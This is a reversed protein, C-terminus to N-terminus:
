ILQNPLWTALWPCFCLLLICSFMALVFWIVHRYIKAMPAAGPMGSIAFVVMGVPPTISGMEMLIVMVVGFWVPDFGLALISPFLAPLTLLIMPVVNIMCGLIVYLVVIGTFVAWKNTTISLIFDALEFPLRTTALFYGLINVGMLIFILKSTTTISSECAHVFNQFTLKRTWMAYLFSGFAGWAGGETPTFIGTLIGGLVFVLLGIMPLVGTLSRFRESWSAKDGRPALEPHIKAVAYIFLCFFTALILGPIIGAIFLKGLSEETIISYFIFGVSPPILIGLTGGCACTACALGANYKFKKMEPLAVSGMTMATALSDGCIAAFGACGSVTAIALGGPVHGMWKSAAKFLDSSIGSYLALEGMLIFMPIVTYNYEMATHPAGIGIISLPALHNPNIIMLGIVGMLCMCFGIPMKLLLLTMLGAFTCCGLLFYEWSIPQDELLWPLSLFLVAGVTGALLAIWHKAELVSAMTNGLTRIVAMAFVALGFSSFLLLAGIPIYLDQTTEQNHLKELGTLGVEYAFVIILVACLIWHFVSLGAQLSKPLHPFIVDVEIHEGKVQIWALSTFFMTMMCIQTLEMAGLLSHQITFRRIVDILIPFAMLVIFICAIRFM